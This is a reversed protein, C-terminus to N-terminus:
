SETFEPEREDQKKTAKYIFEGLEMLGKEDTAKKAMRVLKGTDKISYIREEGQLPLDESGESEQVIRGGQEFVRIERKDRQTAVREKKPETRETKESVNEPTKPVPTEEEKIKPPEAFKKALLKFDPDMYKKIPSPAPTEQKPAPDLDAHKQKAENWIKEQKKGWSGDVPINYGKANLSEKMKLVQDRRASYSPLLTDYLQENGWEKAYNAVGRLFGYLEGPNGNNSNYLHTRGDIWKPAASGGNYQALAKLMDGKHQKLNEGLLQAAADTTKALDLREDVGDGVKLGYHRAMKETMQFLGKPGTGSASAKQYHGSEHGALALLTGKPLGHKKEYTHANAYLWQLVQKEKARKFISDPIAPDDAKAPNETKVRPYIPM